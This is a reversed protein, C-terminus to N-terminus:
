DAAAKNTDVARGGPWPLNNSGAVLNIQGLWGHLLDVDPWLRNRKLDEEFVAVEDKDILGGAQSDVRACAVALVSQHVRQEAVPRSQRADASFLSGADDMTEVLFCAAAKHHGFIVCRM